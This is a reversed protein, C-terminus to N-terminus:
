SYIDEVFIKIELTEKFLVEWTLKCELLINFLIDCFITILTFKWLLVNQTYTIRKSNTRLSSKITFYINVTHFRILSIFTCKWIKKTRKVRILIHPPPPPPLRACFNRVEKDTIERYSKCLYSNDGM